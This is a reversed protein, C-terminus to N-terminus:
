HGRDHADPTYRVIYASHPSPPSNNPAPRRRETRADVALAGATAGVFITRLIPVQGMLVTSPEPAPALVRAAAFGGGFAALVAALLVLRWSGRALRLRRPLPTPRAQHALLLDARLRATFAPDRSVPRSAARLREGVARLEPSVDEASDGTMRKRKM